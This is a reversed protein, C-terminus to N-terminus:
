EQSKTPALLNDNLMLRQHSPMSLDNGIVADHITELFYPSSGMAVPPDSQGRFSNRESTARIFEPTPIRNTVSHTRSKLLERAVNGETFERGAVGGEVIGRFEL